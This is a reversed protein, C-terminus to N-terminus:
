YKFNSTREKSFYTQKLENVKKATYNWDVNADRFNDDTRILDRVDIWKNHVGM